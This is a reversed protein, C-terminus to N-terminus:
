LAIAAFYPPPHSFCRQPFDEESLHHHYIVTSIQVTDEKRTAQQLRRDDIELWSKLSPDVTIISKGTIGRDTSRVDGYMSSARGSSSM